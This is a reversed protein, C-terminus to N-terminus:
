ILYKELNLQRVAEIIESRINIDLEHKWSDKVNKNKFVAYQDSDHTSQSAQLFEITQGTLEIGTFSFTEKIIDIPNLVLEDYSIVKVNNPYKAQLEIYMQTLSVWDNFGWFEEPATKRCQASKWEELPNANSPFEGKSKLWSNIMGCPNRVIHVIKINSFLELLRNTLNHYRTYKMILFSPNNDKKNFRPYKGNIKREIQDMFEDETKYVEDFFIEWEEKTSSLGVYDKFRYSFLPELKFKTSPSSDFIQGLWSTGSRPMGNVVIVRM